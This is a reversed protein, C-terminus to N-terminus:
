PTKKGLKNNDKDPNLAYYVEQFKSFQKISQFRKKSVLNQKCFTNIYAKYKDELEKEMEVKPKSILEIKKRLIDAPRTIDCIFLYAEFSEVKYKDVEDDLSVKFKYEDNTKIQQFYEKQEISLGQDTLSVTSRVVDKFNSMLVNFLNFFKEENLRLQLYYPYVNM